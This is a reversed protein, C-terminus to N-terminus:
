KIEVEKRDILDRGLTDSPHDYLSFFDANNFATDSRLQYITVVLPSAENNVNPNLDNAAQYALTLQNVKKQSSCSVLFLMIIIIFFIFLNSSILAILPACPM